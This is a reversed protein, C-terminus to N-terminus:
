IKLVLSQGETCVNMAFRVFTIHVKKFRHKLNM